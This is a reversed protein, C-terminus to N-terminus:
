PKEAVFIKYGWIGLDLCAKQRSGAVSNLVISKPIKEESMQLILLPLVSESGEHMFDSSKQILPTKDICQINVLGAKKLVNGFKKATTRNPIAWSSLVDDYMKEEDKNLDERVQFSDAVVLIGGNNLLRYAERAFVEKNQAHCISELGLIKDFSSDDFETSNFDMMYFKLLTNNKNDKSLEIATDLLRKSLTIGVTEIGLNEVIYRCSGGVGCGADLLRDGPKLDLYHIVEKITNVLSEEHTMTDENWFGYHLHEKSWHLEYDEYTEDYYRESTDQCSSSTTSPSIPQNSTDKM